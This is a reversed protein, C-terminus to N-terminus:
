LKSLIFEMWMGKIREPKYEDKIEMANHGLVSALEPNEIVKKIGEALGSINNPEVLIGRRNNDLLMAPGGSDCNTAVCPVGAAMVELLVNPIGESRSSLVFVSAERVEKAVNNVHGCLKVKNELKLEKILQQLDEKEPGDGYINLKFESFTHSVIVFSRILIDFGKDRALRGAAAIIKDRTGQFPEIEDIHPIYPNPIVTSNHSVSEGYFCQAKPTQFVLGDFKPFLKRAMFNTIKRKNQPGGRESGFVKGKWNYLALKTVIMMSATFVVVIDIDNQYVTRRIAKAMKLYNIVKKFISPNERTVGFSEFFLVREVNRAFLNEKDSDYVLAFTKKFSPGIGKVLFRLMKASGSYGLGQGIFLINKDNV